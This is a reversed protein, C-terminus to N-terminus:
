LLRALHLKSVIHRHDPTRNALTHTMSLHRLQPAVSRLADAHVSLDEEVPRGWQAAWSLRLRTLNPSAALLGALCSPPGKDM